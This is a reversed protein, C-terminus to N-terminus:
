CAVLLKGTCERRQTGFIIATRAVEDFNHVISFVKPRKEAPCVTTVFTCSDAAVVCVPEPQLGATIYVATSGSGVNSPM